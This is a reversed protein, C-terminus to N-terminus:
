RPSRANLVETEPFETRGVTGQGNVCSESELMRYVPLVRGLRAQKSSFSCKITTDVQSLRLHLVSLFSRM